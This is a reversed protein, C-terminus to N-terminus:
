LIERLGAVCLKMCTGDRWSRTKMNKMDDLVQSLVIKKTVIYAVLFLSFLLLLFEIHEGSYRWTRLVSLCTM